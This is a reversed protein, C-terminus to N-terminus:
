QDQWLGGAAWDFTGPATRLFGGSVSSRSGTATNNIGGSISSWGGSAINYDGGSVSSSQGSATNDFGGSVSSHDGSATNYEGGSVSANGGTVLNRYGAVLGGYSTYRHQPGIVLNHSGTRQTTDILDGENYGVILNGLGNNTDTQDSGNQVHVNVGSFVLHPGTVGNIKATTMYACSLTYELVEIRAELAAVDASSSSGGGGCSYVFAIGALFGVMVLFLSGLRKM